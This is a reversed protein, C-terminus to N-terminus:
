KNPLLYSDFVRVKAFHERNAEVFQKHQPHELYKAKTEKDRFVVHLAVDWDKVSPPEEVDEAIAGVSFYVSGDIGKLYKECSAAFADRSAKSHDKLTFFVMHALPPGSKEATRAVTGVVSLVALGLLLACAFPKSMTPTEEAPNHRPGEAAIACSFV